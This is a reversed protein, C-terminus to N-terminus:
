KFLRWKIRTYAIRFGHREANRQSGSGPLAGMMALDCGHGAAYRLRAELLSLQAGQKRASPVTSAGALLAIGNHVCLAGTAIPKGDMEALFSPAASRDVSLRALVRIQDALEIQESWGEAATQAWLDGEDSNIPRVQLRDNTLANLRIGPDIPRYLVSTFEIPRYGRESLRNFLALDAMPSIEHCVPAGREIFFKEIAELETDTIPDFLGLGFTQTIPSDVGDFMCYAGAVDIWCAGSDPFARARAEVFEANGTAECRELRRSLALDSFPYAPVSTQRSLSNM